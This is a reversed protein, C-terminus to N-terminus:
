SVSIVVKGFHQGSELHAFAAPADDFSFVRDIIPEITHQELFRNM